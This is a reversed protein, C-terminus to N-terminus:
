AMAEVRLDWRLSNNFCRGLAARKTNIHLQLASAAATCGRLHLQEIIKTLGEPTYWLERYLWKMHRHFDLEEHEIRYLVPAVETGVFGGVYGANLGIFEGVAGPSEPAIERLAPKSAFGSISTSKM